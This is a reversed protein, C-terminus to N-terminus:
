QSSAKTWFYSRMDMKQMHNYKKESTKKFNEQAKMSTKKHTWPPHCVRSSLDYKSENESDKRKTGNKGGKLGM